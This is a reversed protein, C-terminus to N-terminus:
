QSLCEHSIRSEKDHIQLGRGVGQGYEGAGESAERGAESEQLASDTSRPCWAGLEEQLSPQGRGPM